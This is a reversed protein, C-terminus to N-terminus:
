RCVVEVSCNARAAIASSVHELDTRRLGRFGSSGVFISDAQWIEAEALLRLPRGERVESTVAFAARELADAAERVSQCISARIEAYDTPPRTELLGFIESNLAAGPHIVGHVRFETEAPWVRSLVSNVAARSQPTDDVCLFVRPPRATPERAPRAIRVSCAAHQLVTQAASGPEARHRSCLILLDPQWVLAKNIISAADSNVTTGTAITWSPFINRLRAAAASAHSQASELCHVQASQVHTPPEGIWSWNAAAFQMDEARSDAACIVVAEAAGPLGARALEDLAGDSRDSGDCAILLRM